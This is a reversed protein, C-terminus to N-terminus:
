QMEDQSPAMGVDTTVTSRWFTEPLVIDAAPEGPAAPAEAHLVVAREDTLVEVVVASGARSLELQYPTDAALPAVDLGSRVFPHEGVSLVQVVPRGGVEVWLDAPPALGPADHWLFARTVKAGPALTFPDHRQPATHIAQGYGCTGPAGGGGPSGCEGTGGDGTDGTDVLIRGDGCGSAVAGAALGAAV